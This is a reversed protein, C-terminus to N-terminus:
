KLVFFFNKIMRLFKDVTFLCSSDSVVQIHILQTVPDFIGGAFGIPVDLFKESDFTM